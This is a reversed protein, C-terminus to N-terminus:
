SIIKAEVPDYNEVRKRNIEERNKNRYEEDYKRKKELDVGSQKCQKCETRWKKTDSRFYFYEITLPKDIECKICKQTTM